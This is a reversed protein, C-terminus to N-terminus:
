NLIGTPQRAYPLVDLLNRQWFTSVDILAQARECDTLHPALAVVNADTFLEWDRGHPLPMTVVVTHENM